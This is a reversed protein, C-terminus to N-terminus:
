SLKGIEYVYYFDDQQNPTKKMGVQQSHQITLELIDDINSFQTIPNGFNNHRACYCYACSLGCGHIFSPMVFDSSNNNPKIKLDKRARVDFGNKKAQQYLKIDM